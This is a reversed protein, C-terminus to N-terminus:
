TVSAAKPSPNSQAALYSMDTIHENDDVLM